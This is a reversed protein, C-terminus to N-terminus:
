GRCSRPWRLAIESGRQPMKRWVRHENCQRQSAAMSLVSTKSLRATRVQLQFRLLCDSVFGVQMPVELAAQPGVRQPVSLRGCEKGRAVRLSPVGVDARTVCSASENGGSRALSIRSCAFLGKAVVAGLPGSGLPRFDGVVRVIATPLENVAFFDGWPAREDPLSHALARFQSRASM